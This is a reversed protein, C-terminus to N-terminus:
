STRAGSEAAIAVLDPALVPHLVPPALASHLFDLLERRRRALSRLTPEEGLARLVEVETAMGIVTSYASLLLLRSDTARM